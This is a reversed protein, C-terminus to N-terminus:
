KFHKELPKHFTQQKKNKQSCYKCLGKGLRSLTNIQRCINRHKYRSRKTCATRQEFFVILAQQLKAFRQSQLNCHAICQLIGYILFSGIATIVMREGRVMGTKSEGCVIAWQIPSAGRYKPLLSGHGNICGKKPISLVNEPLLKGYAVVVIVDPSLSKLQEVVAEDKLTTPQYVSLGVSQAYQKVAPATLIQKRGVPKDPQCYVGVIQHKSNYLKELTPVAFDPTGMFVIRM